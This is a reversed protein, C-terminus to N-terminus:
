NSSSESFQCTQSLDCISPLKEAKKMLREMEEGQLRSQQQQQQQVTWQIAECTCEDRVNQLEECCGQTDDRQSGRILNGTQWSRMLQRCENLQHKQIEKRCEGSQSQSQSQSQSKDDDQVVTTITTRYITAEAMAVLGVLFVAMVLLRAM